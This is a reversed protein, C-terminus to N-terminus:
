IECKRWFTFKVKAEVGQYTNQDIIRVIEESSMGGDCIAENVDKHKFTDPWLCVNYGNTIHNYLIKTAEVNRPENDMVFVANHKHKKIIDADLNTGSVALCNHLFMQDIQGELVYFKKSFDIEDLGYVNEASEDIKIIIYKKKAKKDFSRSNTSYVNGDKDFFPFVIRPEDKYIEPFKGPKISNVWAYFTDTYFIKKFFKEPIKRSKLYKVAIHGSDLDAVCSLDKLINDSNVEQKEKTFIPKNHYVFKSDSGEKFREFVYEKYLNEDLRKILTGLSCSFSCNWCKYNLAGEINYIYGRAKFESKKSDGCIPCRFNWRDVDIQKFQKLRGGLISAYKRDIYLM